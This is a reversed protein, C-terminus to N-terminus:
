AIVFRYWLQLFVLLLFLALVFPMFLALLLSLVFGSCPCVALALCSCLALKSLSSLLLSTLLLAVAPCSCLLFFIFHSCSCLALGRHSSLGSSSCSGLLLLCLALLTLRLASVLFFFILPCTFALDSRLALALRSSGLALDRRTGGSPGLALAHRCSRARRRGSLSGELAVCFATM